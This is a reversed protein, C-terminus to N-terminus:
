ILSLSWGCLDCYQSIDQIDEPVTCSWFMEFMPLLNQNYKRATSYVRSIDVEERNLLASHLFEVRKIDNYYSSLLELCLRIIDDNHELLKERAALSHPMDYHIISQYSAFVKILDFYRNPVRRQAAGELIYQIFPILVTMCLSQLDSVLSSSTTLITSVLLLRHSYAHALKLHLRKTILSSYQYWDLACARDDYTSTLWQSLESSRTTMGTLLDTM